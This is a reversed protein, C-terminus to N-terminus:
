QDGNANYNFSGNESDYQPRRIEILEEEGEVKIKLRNGEEEMMYGNMFFTTATLGGFSFLETM